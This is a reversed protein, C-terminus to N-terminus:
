CWRLARHAPGAAKIQDRACVSRSRGDVGDSVGRGSSHRATACSRPLSTGRTTMMKTEAEREGACVRRPRWRVAVVAFLFFDGMLHGSLFVILLEQPTWSPPCEATKLCGLIVPTTDIRCSYPLYETSTLLAVFFLYGSAVFMSVSCFLSSGFCLFTM